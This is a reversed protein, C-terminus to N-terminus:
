NSGQWSVHCYFFFILRCDCPPWGCSKHMAAMHYGYLRTASQIQGMVAKNPCTTCHSFALPNRASTASDWQVSISLMIMLVKPSILFQDWRSKRNLDTTWGGSKFSQQSEDRRRKEERRVNENVIWHRKNFKHDM